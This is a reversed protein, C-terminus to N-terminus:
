LKVIVVGWDKCTLSENGRTFEVNDYKVIKVSIFLRRPIDFLGRGLFQGPPHVRLGLALVRGGVLGLLSGVHM